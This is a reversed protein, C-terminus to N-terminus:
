SPSETTLKKVILSNSNVALVEIDTGIELQANDDASANWPERDVLVRFGGAQSQGEVVVGQMGVLREAGVKADSGGRTLRRALPRLAILSVISTVIFVIIQWVLDFELVNFIAALVAGVAFPLMFFSLSLMEGIFLLAALIIWVWFWPIAEM